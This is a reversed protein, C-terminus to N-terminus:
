DTRCTSLLLATHASIQNKPINGLAIHRCIALVSFTLFNVQSRMSVDTCPAGEAAKAAVLENRIEQQLLDTIVRTDDALSTLMLAMRPDDVALRLIMELCKGLRDLGRPLGRHTADFTSRINEAAFRAVSETLSELDDFYTYFSTRGVGAVDCVEIVTLGAAGKEGIVTSAASLLAARTRRAKPTLEDPSKVM